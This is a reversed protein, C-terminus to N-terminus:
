GNSKAKGFLYGLLLTLIPLVTKTVLLDFVSALEDRLEDGIQRHALLSERIQDSTLGITGPLAALKWLYYALLVLCVVLVWGGTCALFVVGWRELYSPPIDFANGVAEESIVDREM